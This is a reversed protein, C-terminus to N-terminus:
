DEDVYCGSAEFVRSPNSEAKIQGGTVKVGGDTKFDGGSVHFTGATVLVQALATIDASAGTGIVISADTGTVEFRGSSSGRIANTFTIAYSGTGNALVKGDMETSVDVAIPGSPAEIKGTAAIVLVNWTGPVNAIVGGVSGTARFTGDMRLSADLWFKGAVGSTASFEIAGNASVDLCRCVMLTASAPIVVKGNGEIRITDFVEFGSVTYTCADPVLLSGDTITWCDRALAPSGATLLVMAVAALVARPQRLGRFHPPHRTPRGSRRPITNGNM